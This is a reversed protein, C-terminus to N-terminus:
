PERTLGDLSLARRSDTGTIPSRHVFGRRIAPRTTM